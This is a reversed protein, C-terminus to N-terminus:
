PAISVQTTFEDGEDSFTFTVARGCFGVSSAAVWRAQGQGREEGTDNDLFRGGSTGIILNESCEFGDLFDFQQPQIIGTGAVGIGSTILNAEVFLDDPLSELPGTAAYFSVEVASLTSQNRFVL